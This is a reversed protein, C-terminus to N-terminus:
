EQKSDGNVDPVRYEVQRLGPLERRVVFDEVMQRGTVGGGSIKLRLPAADVLEGPTVQAQAPTLGAGEGWATRHLFVSGAPLEGFTNDSSLAFLAYGSGDVCLRLNRPILVAGGKGDYPIVWLKSLDSSWVAFGSFDGTDRNDGAEKKASEALLCNDYLWPILVGPGFLRGTALSMTRFKESDPRIASDAGVFAGNQWAFADREFPIAKKGLRSANVGSGDSTFRMFLLGSEKRNRNSRIRQIDNDDVYFFLAIVEDRDLGVAPRSSYSPNYRDRQPWGVFRSWLLEGTPSIRILFLMPSEAADYVVVMCGGDSMPLVQDRPSENPVPCEFNLMWDGGRSARRGIRCLNIFRDGRRLQFFAEKGYATAQGKYYESRNFSAATAIARSSLIGAPELYALVAATSESAGDDMALLAGADTRFVANVNLQGGSLCIGSYGGDGPKPAYEPPPPVPFTSATASSKELTEAEFRLAARPAEWEGAYGKTPPFAAKKALEAAEPTAVAEVGRDLDYVSVEASGKEVARTALRRGGDLFVAQSLYRAPRFSEYERGAPSFLRLVPHLGDEENFRIGYFFLAGSSAPQAIIPVGAFAHYTATKTDIDVLVVAGSGDETYCMACFRGNDSWAMCRIIRANWARTRLDVLIAGAEAGPRYLYALGEGDFHAISGGDPSTAELAESEDERTIAALAKYREFALDRSDGEFVGTPSELRSSRGYFLSEQRSYTGAKAGRSATGAGKEAIVPVFLPEAPMATEAPPAEKRGAFCAALAGTLVVLGMAAWVRRWIGICLGRGM